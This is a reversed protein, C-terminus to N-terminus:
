SSSRHVNPDHSCQSNAQKGDEEPAFPDEFLWPMFRKHARSLPKKTDPHIRHVRAQELVKKERTQLSLMERVYYNSQGPGAIMNFQMISLWQFRPGSCWEVRVFFPTLSVYILDFIDMWTRRQIEADDAFTAPTRRGDFWSKVQGPIFYSEPFLTFRPTTRTGENLVVQYSSRFCLVADVSGFLTTQDGLQQRNTVVVSM